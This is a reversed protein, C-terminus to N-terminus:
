SWGPVPAPQPALFPSQPTLESPSTPQPSLHTITTKIPNPAPIACNLLTAIHKVLHKTDGVLSLSPVNPNSDALLYIIDTISLLLYDESITNPILIVTPIFGVTDAIITIHTSPIYCEM